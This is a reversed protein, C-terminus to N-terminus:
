VEDVTNEMWVVVCLTWSPHRRSRALLQVSEVINPLSELKDQIIPGKMKVMMEVRRTVVGRAAQWVGALMVALPDM